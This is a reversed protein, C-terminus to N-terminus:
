AVLKCHCSAELESLRGHMLEVCNKVPEFWKEGLFVFENGVTWTSLFAKLFVDFMFDFIMEVCNM